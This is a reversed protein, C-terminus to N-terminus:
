NELKIMNKLENLTYAENKVKTHLMVHCNPCVPILDKIPNIEYNGTKTSV